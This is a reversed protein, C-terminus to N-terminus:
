SVRALEMFQVYHKLAQPLPLLELKSFLCEWGVTTRILVRCVGQLSPPMWKETGDERASGDGEIEDVRRDVAVGVAAGRPARSQNYTGGVDREVLRGSRNTLNCMSARRLLREIAVHGLQTALQQPTQQEPGSLTAPDAGGLLLWLVTDKQGARVAALLPSDAAPGPRVMSAAPRDAYSERSTAIRDVTRVEGAATGDTTSEVYVPPRDITCVGGAATRYATNEREAARRDVPNEAGVATRNATSTVGAATRGATSAVTRIATQVGNIDECAAPANPNAGLDLLRAVLLPHHVVYALPVAGRHDPVDMDAGAEVLAALCDLHECKAALLLATEGVKNRLDLDASYPLLAELVDHDGRAAAMMVATDGGLDDQIDVSAAPLLLPIMPREGHLVALHLAGRGGRDQASVDAGHQLLLRAARGHHLRVATMLPTRGHPNRADPHAGSSLLYATAEEYGRAVARQLPTTGDSRPQDVPAGHHLLLLLLRCCGAEAAGLLLPSGTCM